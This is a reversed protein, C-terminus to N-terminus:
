DKIKIEILTIKLIDTPFSYNRELYNIKVEKDILIKNLQKSKELLLIQLYHSFYVDAHM